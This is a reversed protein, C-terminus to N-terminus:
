KEGKKNRRYEIIWYAFLASINERGILEKSIAKAEEVQETTLVICVNKGTKVM